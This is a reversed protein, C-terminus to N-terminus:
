GDQEGDKTKKRITYVIRLIAKEILLLIGYAM